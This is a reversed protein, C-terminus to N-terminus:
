LYRNKRRIDEYMQKINRVFRKDYRGYILPNIFCNAYTVFHIVARTHRSFFEDGGHAFDILLWLLHNPLMCVAFVSMIITFRILIQRMEKDRRKDAVMQVSYAFSKTCDTPIQLTTSPPREETSASNLTKLHIVPHEDQSEASRGSFLHNNNSTFVQNHFPTYRPGEVPSMCLPSEAPSMCSPSGVPSMYAPPPSGVPSMCSPSIAEISMSAQEEILSSRVNVTTKDIKRWTIVYLLLM